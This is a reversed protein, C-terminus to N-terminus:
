NLIKATDKIIAKIAAKDLKGSPIAHNAVVTLGKYIMVTVGAKPNIGINDPGFEFEVPVVIPVNTIKNADIFKTAAEELAERDEGLFNVFASMKKDTNDAVIKDIQKVLSAM